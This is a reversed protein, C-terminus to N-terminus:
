QKLAYNFNDIFKAKNRELLESRMGNSVIRNKEMKFLIRELRRRKCNKLSGVSIFQVKNSSKINRGKKKKKANVKDLIRRLSPFDEILDRIEQALPQETTYNRSDQSTEELAIGQENRQIINGHFPCKVRDKRKCFKNAGIPAGCTHFVPKFTESYTFARNQIMGIAAESPKDIEPESIWFTHLGEFRPLQDITSAKGWESFDIDQHTNNNITVDDGIQFQEKFTSNSRQSFSLQAIFSTPDFPQIIDDKGSINETNEDKEEKPYSSLLLSTIKDSDSIVISEARKIVDYLRTKLDIVKSLLNTNESRGITNLWKLILPLLRISITKLSNRLKEIICENDPSLSIQIKEKSLDIEMRFDHYLHKFYDSFQKMDPLVVEWDDEDSDSNESDSDFHQEESFIFDDNMIIDSKSSTPIDTIESLETPIQEIEPTREMANDVGTLVETSNIDNNSSIVESIGSNLVINDPGTSLDDSVNRFDFDVLRPVLLEFCTNCEQIVEEVNTSIDDFEGHINQIEKEVFVKRVRERHEIRMQHVDPVEPQRIGGHKRGQIYRYAVRLRPYHMGYKEKWLELSALSKARLKKAFIVPEPLTKRSELGTTLQIVQKLNAIVLDRFIKSRSFLHDLVNFAAFRIQSHEQQLQDLILNFSVIIYDDKLQLINKLQKLENEPLSPSVSSTLLKILRKLKSNISSNDSNTISQPM